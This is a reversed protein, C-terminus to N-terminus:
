EGGLFVCFEAAVCESARICRDRNDTGSCGERSLFWLPEDLALPYIDPEGLSRCIKFWERAIEEREADVQPQRNSRYIIRHTARAIHVDVPIPVEEINKLKIGAVDKLIRLWFPLIKYGTLGPLEGLGKRVKYILKADYNYEELLGFPSGGYRETFTKCLRHVFRANNNPYRGTFGHVSMARCVAELDRRAVEKMDFLWATEPDLYTELAAQWLHDANAQYDIAAAITLVNARDEPRVQRLCFYEPMNERTKGFVGPGNRFAEYLNKVFRKVQTHPVKSDSAVFNGRWQLSDHKNPDRKCQCTGLLTEVKDKRYRRHGSPLRVPVIFTTVRFIAAVERPLLLEEKFKRNSLKRKKGEQPL